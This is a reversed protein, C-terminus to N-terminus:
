SLTIDSNLIYLQNLKDVNDVWNRQTRILFSPSICLSPCTYSGMYLNM